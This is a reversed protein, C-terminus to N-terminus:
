KSISYVFDKGDVSFTGNFLVTPVELPMKQELVRLTRIETKLGDSAEQHKPLKIVFDENLCFAESHDGSGVFNVSHVKLHKAAINSVLPLSYKM